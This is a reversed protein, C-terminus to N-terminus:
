YIGFIIISNESPMSFDVVQKLFKEPNEDIFKQGLNQLFERDYTLDREECYSKLYAGFSAIQSKPILEQVSKALTSKGSSINGIIIISKNM